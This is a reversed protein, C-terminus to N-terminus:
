EHLLSAFYAANVYNTHMIFKYYYTLNSQKRRVNMKNGSGSSSSTAGTSCDTSTEVPIQYSGPSYRSLFYSTDDESEPNPIFAAQLPLMDMLSEGVPLYEVFKM